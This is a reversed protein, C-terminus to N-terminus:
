SAGRERGASAFSDAPRIRPTPVGTRIDDLLRGIQDARAEAIMHLTEAVAQEHMTM